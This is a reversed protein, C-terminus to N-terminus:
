LAIYRPELRTQQSIVAGATSPVWTADVDTSVVKDLVYVNGTTDVAVKFPLHLGIFSVVTPTGSGAALKVVRDNFADAAYLNGATDVAIDCFDNLGTFTLTVQAGYTHEHHQTSTRSTIQSNSPTIQPGSPKLIVAAVAIGVV